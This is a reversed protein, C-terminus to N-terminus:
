SGDTASSRCYEGPVTAAPLCHLEELERILVM